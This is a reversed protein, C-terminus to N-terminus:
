PIKQFDMSCAITLESAISPKLIVPPGFAQYAPSRLDHPDESISYVAICVFTSKYPLKGRRLANEVPGALQDTSRFGRNYLNGRGKADMHVALKVQGAMRVVSRNRHTHCSDERLEAIIRIKYKRRANSVALARGETRSTPEM